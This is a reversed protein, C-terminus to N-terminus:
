WTASEKFKKIAAELEAEIDKNYDGSANIKEILAKENNSMYDLLAAEFDEIKNLEVQAERPRAALKDRIIKAAAKEDPTEVFKDIIDAIGGAAEVVGGGIVKAIWSM